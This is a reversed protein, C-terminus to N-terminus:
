AAGGVRVQADLWANLDEVRYLVLNRSVRIYAPGTGELRWRRMTGSSVGLTEAAPDTGLALQNKVDVATATPVTTKSM